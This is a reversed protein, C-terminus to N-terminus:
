KRLRKDATFLPNAGDTREKNLKEKAQQAAGALKTDIFKSMHHLTDKLVDIALGFNAIATKTTDGMEGSLRSQFAPDNLKTLEQYITQMSNAAQQEFRRSEFYISDLQKPDLMKGKGGM